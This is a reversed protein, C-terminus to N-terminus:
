KKKCARIVEDSSRHSVKKTRPTYNPPFTVLGNALGTYTQKKVCRRAANQSVRNKGASSKVASKKYIRGNKYLGVQISLKSVKKSCKIDATVNVRHKNDAHAHHSYHPTHTTIKCTIVDSSRADRAQFVSTATDGSGAGAGSRAPSAAAPAAGASGAGATAILLAAFGGAAVTRVATNM